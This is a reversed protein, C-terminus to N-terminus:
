SASEMLSSLDQTKAGETCTEDPWAIADDESLGGTIEVTNQEEDKQGTEVATKHLRGNDSVWVYTSGDDETVIYSADLWIGTKATNQGLDPEIYVHQGLMLGESSSLTVYFPYKSAQNSTDSSNYMDTSATSSPEQDIQAVTGSWTQTEDARSRILVAQGGTLTGVSVEDLTGKVRLDGSQTISVVPLINGSADTGGDPNVAKVTGDITSKVTGSAVEQEYRSIDNEKSQIEYQDSRISTQKSQIETTYSLKDDGTASQLQNQLQTIQDNLSAIDSNLQEIELNAEAINNSAESTDYTFLVDGAKVAQGEQVNVSTIKKDEDKKFDVTSQAQVVGSLRDVTVDAGTLESVKTVIVADADTSSGRFSYILIGACVAGAAAASVIWIKTKKKM